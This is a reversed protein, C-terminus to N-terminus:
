RKNRESEIKAIFRRAWMNHKQAIGSILRSYKQEQGSLRYICALLVAARSRSKDDNLLPELIQEALTYKSDQKFLLLVIAYTCKVYGDKAGKIEHEASKLNGTLIYYWALWNNIYYTNRRNVGKSRYLNAVRKAARLYTGAKNGYEEMNISSNKGRIVEMFYLYLYILGMRYLMDIISLKKLESNEDYQSALHTFDIDPNPKTNFLSEFCKDIYEKAANLNRKDQEMIQKIQFQGNLLNLLYYQYLWDNMQTKECYYKALSYLSRVYERHNDKKAKEHEGIKEYLEVAKELHGVANFEMEEIADFVEKSWQKVSYRYNDVRKDMIRGIRYHAKISDPNLELARNNWELALEIEKKVNGDRRGKPQTLELVNKYHRYGLALVHSYNHSDLECCRKLIEICLERYRRKNELYGKEKLREREFDAMKSCAFGVGYLVDPDNWIDKERIKELPEFLDCMGKWDNQKELKSLRALFDSDRIVGSPMNKRIEEFDDEDEIICVLPLYIKDKRNIWGKVYGHRRLRKHIDGSTVDLEKFDNFIIELKDTNYYLSGRQACYAAKYKERSFYIICQYIGKQLLQKYNPFAQKFTDFYERQLVFRKAALLKSQELFNVILYM